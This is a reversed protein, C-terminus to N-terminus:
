LKFRRNSKSLQSYNITSESLQQYNVVINKIFTKIILMIPNMEQINRLQNHQMDKHNFIHIM